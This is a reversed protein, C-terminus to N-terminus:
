HTEPCSSPMANILRKKDLSRIARAGVVGYVKRSLGSGSLECRVLCLRASDVGTQHSVLSRVPLGFRLCVARQM